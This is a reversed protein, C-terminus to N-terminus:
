GYVIEGFVCCQLFVDGTIADENEDMFNTFHRNYKDSMVKLGKIIDSNKITYSQDDDYTDRVVLWGDPKTPAEFSYVAGVKKANSKVRVAWPSGGEFASCLLDSVREPTVEVQTKIQFTKMERSRKIHTFSKALSM